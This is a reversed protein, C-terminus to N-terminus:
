ATPPKSEEDDTILAEVRQEAQSLAHQCSKTLQVGKEFHKLSDELSLEGAEMKQVIAELEHLTAEFDPAQKAKNNPM